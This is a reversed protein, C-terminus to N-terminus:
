EFGAIFDTQSNLNIFCREINQIGSQYFEFVLESILKKQCIHSFTDKSGFTSRKIFTRGLPNLENLHHLYCLMKALAM